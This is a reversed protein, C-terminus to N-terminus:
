YVGKLLDNYQQLIGGMTKVFAHALLYTLFLCIATITVKRLTSFRPNIWVAPLIFPGVLLFGIVLSSTRHYWRVKKAAGEGLPKGCFLCVTVSDEIEENCFPCKKM